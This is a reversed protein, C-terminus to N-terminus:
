TLQETQMNLIHINFQKQMHASYGLRCIEQNKKGKFKSYLLHNINTVTKSRDFIRVHMLATM